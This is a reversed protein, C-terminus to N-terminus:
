TAGNALILFHRTILESTGTTVLDLHIGAIAVFRYGLNLACHILLRNRCM